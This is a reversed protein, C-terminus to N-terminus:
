AEVPFLTDLTKERAAVYHLYIPLKAVITRYTEAGILERIYYEHYTAITKAKECLDAHFAPLDELAKKALTLDNPRYQKLDIFINGADGYLGMKALTSMAGQIEHENSMPIASALLVARAGFLAAYYVQPFTWNLSDKLYQDDSILPTINLAYEASWSNLLLKGLASLEDESLIIPKDTIM